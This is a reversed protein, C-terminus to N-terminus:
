AYNTLRCGLAIKMIMCEVLDVAAPEPDAEYVGTRIWRRNRFTNGGGIYKVADIHIIQGAHLLIPQPETVEREVKVTAMTGGQVRRVGPACLRWRCRAGGSAARALALALAPALPASRVHAATCVQACSNVHTGCISLWWFNLLCAYRYCCNTNNDIFCRLESEWSVYCFNM